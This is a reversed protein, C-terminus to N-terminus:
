IVLIGGVRENWDNVLNIVSIVDQYYSLVYDDTAVMNQPCQLCTGNIWRRYSKLSILLLHSFLSSLLFFSISFKENNRNIIIIIKEQRVRAM